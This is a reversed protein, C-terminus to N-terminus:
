MVSADFSSSREAAVISSDLRGIADMVMQVSIQERMCAFSGGDPCWQAFLQPVALTQNRIKELFPAMVEARHMQQYCPYFGCTPKVEVAMWEAIGHRFPLRCSGNVVSFLAVIGVDSAAALQVPGSDAAVLIDSRRMLAVTGLTSLANVASLLGEPTTGARQTERDSNAGIEIVQHGLEILKSALESWRERPWSRNPDGTGCHLIIRAGDLAPNPWASLLRDVEEEAARNTVLDISKMKAEASVGFAQLYADIQHVRSLGYAAPALDVHKVNGYQEGLMEVKDVVHDVHPCAEVLSRFQPATAVIVPRDSLAKVVKAAGLAMLLDGMGGQRELCIADFRRLAQGPRFPKRARLTIDTWQVVNNYSEIAHM